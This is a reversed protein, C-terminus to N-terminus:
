RLYQLVGSQGDLVSGGVWASQSWSEVGANCSRDEGRVRAFIHMFRVQSVQRLDTERNMYRSCCWAQVKKQTMPPSGVRESPAAFGHVDGQM